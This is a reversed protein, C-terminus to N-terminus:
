LCCDVHIKSVRIKEGKEDAKAAKMTQNMLANIWVTGIATAARVLVSKKGDAEKLHLMGVGLKTYQKDVLKFVSCKSSFTAGPEEFEVVEAKPPVYEGEDLYM